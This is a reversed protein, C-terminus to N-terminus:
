CRCEDSVVLVPVKSHRILNESVSGLILRDLGTRGLTGIVVIDMGEEEAYQILKDVPHGELLITEVNVRVREGMEKIKKVAHEGDKKLAEHVKERYFDVDISSSYYTSVVYVAYVTGGSLRAVEIGKNAALRSCISGDTAIMIKEVNIDRVGV